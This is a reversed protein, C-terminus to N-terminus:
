CLSDYENGPGFVAETHNEIGLKILSTTNASYTPWGFADLGHEPDRAFAAWASQYYNSTAKELDIDPGRLDSTGFIMPIDSSHYAGLWSLPNLNRWEGFYHTRWVPVNYKARAAAGRADPCTSLSLTLADVATQNPGSPNYAVLSAGENNVQSLITPLKAFLGRVERDTNNSFSTYNDPAPTFSLSKGGNLTSNYTDYLNIIATGDLNQMCALEEDPSSSNCGLKTAVYSFNSGSPDDLATGEVTGSQAIFGKVIPDTWHAYNYKDVSMGGASQGFLIMQEPNGGFAEINDYIWEVAKRQDELGPNLHMGDLAAANPYGFINLRYSRYDATNWVEPRM